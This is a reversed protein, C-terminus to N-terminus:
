QAGRKLQTVSGKGDTIEYGDATRKFKINATRAKSEALDLAYQNRDAERKMELELLKAAFDNRVADAKIEFDREMEEKKLALEAMAAKADQAAQMADTRTGSSIKTRELELRAQQLMMDAQAKQKEVELKAMKVAMDSKAQQLEQAQQQIIQQMQEVQAQLEPPIQPGEEQTVVWEEPNKKGADRYMDILVREPKLKPAFLPNGSAFVTVNSINERRQQEGLIGRAGVVDFRADVDIDKRTFRVIDPTNMENSYAQYDGLKMRNLAHSMYLFPCLGNREIKGIFDITRVESGQEMLKAETATQRDSTQTGQRLSSVGLGEQLQRFGFQMAQLAIDPRGIELAKWGKGFSKTPNKAGPTLDPGGMAIYDPDNGDYEIPPTVLLEVADAFKNAMISTFKQMPSQKIVPSTYYPDRVDQREYGAFIVRPYPLDNAKAYVLKGNALIVEMNPLYIDGDGREIAIDGFWKVLEVDQTENDKDRHEEKKVKAIREHIWGEGSQRKLKALPMYEVLIMDGSYFGGSMAVHPSPDPYANWMSHPIWTPAGIQSVKAGSAMLRTEWRVEAAFSGHSLAEKVSMEVKGKLDFDKHQAVMLARLLGDAREQDKEGVEYGQGSEALLGEMDVHPEFWNESGFAIRMVDATIIEAAKSLEGLEIASRWTKKIPRGDPSVQKMPEMDLQRDIEKWKREANKRFTATKRSEFEKKIHAEVKDLDRALIRRKKVEEMLRVM